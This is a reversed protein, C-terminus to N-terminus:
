FSGRCVQPLTQYTQIIRILNYGLKLDVIKQTATDLLREGFKSAVPLWKINSVEELQLNITSDIPTFLYTFDYHYHEAEHKKENYPIKHIDINLPIFDNERHWPHLLVHMGTEEEVERQATDYLTIDNETHGGPQIFKQLKNHFILLVNNDKIVLGSATVHGFSNQRSLLSPDKKLENELELLENDTKSFFANYKTIIERVDNNTM